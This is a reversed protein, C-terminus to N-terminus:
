LLVLVGVCLLFVGSYRLAIAYATAVEETFLDVYRCEEVHSIANFYGDLPVYVLFSTCDHGVSGARWVCHLVTGRCRALLYLFYQYV